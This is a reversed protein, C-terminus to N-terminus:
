MKGNILMIELWLDSHIHLLIFTDKDWGFLWLEIVSNALMIWIPNRTILSESFTIGPQNKNLTLGNAGDGSQTNKLERLKWM